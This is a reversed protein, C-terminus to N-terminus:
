LTSDMGGSYLQTRPGALRRLHMCLSGWATHLMDPLIEASIMEATVPKCIGPHYGRDAQGISRRYLDRAIKGEKDSAM